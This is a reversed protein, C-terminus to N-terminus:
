SGVRQRLFSEITEAYRRPHSFRFMHGTGDLVIESAGAILQRMERAAEEGILRDDAPTIILTPVEIAGLRPRLDASLAAHTRAVFSRHPTNDLFLARTLARSWPIEGRADHPSSLNAAHYRLVGHRYLPGGLMPLLGAMLRVMPSKVPNAAFGGSLVLGRLNGPKRAAVAMGVLAGFSDGVLVVDDLAGIDRAIVDAYAEVDALGEPLRTTRLPRHSLPALQGLSWPSGSFCPIFYLTPNM